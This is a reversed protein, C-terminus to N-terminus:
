PPRISGGRKARISAMYAKMEPTGAKPRGSCSKAAKKGRKLGAGKTAENLSGQIVQSGINGLMPNGTYSTIAQGATKALLPTVIKAGTKLIKGFNLGNGLNQNIQDQGVTSLINGAIPHGSNALQSAAMNLGQTAAIKAVSRVAKNNLAAKAFDMLGEGSDALHSPKIVTGKGNKLNRVFKNYMKKDKFTLTYNM